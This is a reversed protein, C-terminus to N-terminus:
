GAGHNEGKTHSLGIGAGVFGGGCFDAKNITLLRNAGRCLHITASFDIGAEFSFHPRDHTFTNLADITKTAVTAIPGLYGLINLLFIAELDADCFSHPTLLFGVELGAKSFLTRTKPKINIPFGAIGWGYETDSTRTSYCTPACTGPEFWRDLDGMWWTKEGFFYGGVWGIIPAEYGIGAWIWGKL